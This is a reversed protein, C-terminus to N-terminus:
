PQSLLEPGDNAVSNVLRSVPRVELLDTPAQQLLAMLPGPDEAGPALWADWAREPLITPMRDHLDAVAKNARTTVITCTVLASGDPGRWRDWLGALAFPVGDRGTVLYPQKSGEVDRWEYYGDAPILVRRRSLAEAFMSKELLTEVRANIPRPGDTPSVAWSPLLGWRLTGLRRGARVGAVAYVESRPGVNYRAPLEDAVLQAQFRAALESAPTASVFRGCM